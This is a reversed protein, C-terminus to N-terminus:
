KNKKGKAKKKEKEKSNIFSFRGKVVVGYHKEWLSQCVIDMLESNMSTHYDKHIEQFVKFKGYVETFNQELAQKELEFSSILLSHINFPSKVITREISMYRKDDLAKHIAQASEVLNKLAPVAILFRTTGIGSYALLENIYYNFFPNDTFKKDINDQLFKTQYAQGDLIKQFEINLIDEEQKSQEKLKTQKKKALRGKVKETIESNRLPLDSNKVMNSESNSYLEKGEDKNIDSEQNTKTDVYKNYIGSNSNSKIDLFVNRAQNFYRKSKNLERLCEALYYSMISRKYLIFSMNAKTLIMKPKKVYFLYESVERRNEKGLDKKTSFPFLLREENAQAMEELLKEENDIYNLTDSALFALRKYKYRRLCLKELLVKSSPYKNLEEKFSRKILRYSSNFQYTYEDGMLDSYSKIIETFPLKFMMSSYYAKKNKNISNLVKKFYYFSLRNMGQSHYQRFMYYWIKSTLHKNKLFHAVVLVLGIDYCFSIFKNYLPLKMYFIDLLNEYKTTTFYYLFHNLSFDLNQTTQSNNDLQEKYIQELKSATTDSLIDIIHTVELAEEIMYNNMLTSTLIQLWTINHIIDTLTDSNLEKSLVYPTKRKSYDIPAEKGDKEKEKIDGNEKGKEKDDNKIEGQTPERKQILSKYGEFDFDSQIMHLTKIYNMHNLEEVCDSQTKNLQINLNKKRLELRVKYLGKELSANVGSLGKKESELIAQGEEYPTYMIEYKSIHKLRDQM